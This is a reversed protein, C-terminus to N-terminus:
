PRLETLSETYLQAGKRAVRNLTERIDFIPDSPDIYEDRAALESALAVAYESFAVEYALRRFVPDEISRHGKAATLQPHDLNIYITREDRIYQARHSEAGLNEFMVYFGGQPKRTSGSGGAPRGRKEAEPSDPAVQPALNRPMDGSGLRPADQNTGVGGTPSVVVAPAESGSILDSDEAGGDAKTKQLDSGGSAWAKARAVRQRFMDFDENIVKAIESAQAALKRAEEEAKRKKEYQALERRAEEVKQGIFSFISRVLENNSNLRMSRSVDFPTIPSQDEDLKPVDIEGFIYQSMERGESGALTTEHWVGKSFIAIGRLDEELPAKSIKVVLEVDGIQNRLDGEPRFRREDGVPPEAFECEHNNVFVLVNKPWRALHREIYHIIGAQDLSRLHLNEIEVTTGNPQSTAVELETVKVPIPEESNMAEISSRSLEVQSRRGARVTTIRLRDAIGFAASKGTGFRGRGARGEKRDINEGHMVFFNQLGSWDMGRGNDAITIRKKKSDLSVRVIPSTGADVYQLGNSVYEWVVLKDTKFLGASQMLDRAVHSKVFIQSSQSSM